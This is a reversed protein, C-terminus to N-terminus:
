DIDELGQPDTLIRGIVAAAEYGTTGAVPWDDLTEGTVLIKEVWIDTGPLRDSLRRLYAEPDVLGDVHDVRLGQVLGRDVLDFILAHTEAFVESDEVRVGILGTVSFFRRHTISDRELPWPILRWHQRDQLGDLDDLSCEAETGPSLPVELPGVKLIGNGMTVEGAEVLEALPRELWPLALYGQPWDIDFKTAHPSRMGKRLVDRLWPTDLGFAMHNPVIDLILSLGRGRAAAALSEFGPLGGLSPDIQTPDTTDYGHTSGPAATLIPSLYLHSVGLAAIQDLRKEIAAFDTGERLQVRYSAVYTM